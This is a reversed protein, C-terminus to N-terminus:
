PTQRIGAAARPAGDRWWPAPLPRTEPAVQDLTEGEYLRGSKMVYRIAKSNRIEELPNRDLVVLDALKGPEISGLDDSLGIAEAGLITAARLADHRSMGGSQISWLEWHFALGQLQGHSGVGIRGGAEVVRRAFEAHRPFIHEEPLVWGAVGPNGGRRRARGDLEADPLFRRLKPDNAVPETAYYFNEAWPGGYAVLLTATNTTGSNVFLEVVDEYIPAVPLSHEVGSYGDLAHTVELAFDIGGETTPMLGLEKAAMIIWQRQQRNGSMYMKLTKTDYYQRYRKLVDRAHDLSKLQEAAFVGPGTSYVRPGLMEGTAVLDAYTLVDTTATQPDRATTVGYALNALYAWLQGFHIGPSHRFHAHTDVFGPVITKGTVDIVRAGQPPSGGAGVPAVSTIRDNTIVIEANEIIERGKMTIVRAGRLVLTSQPVDRRATIRIRHEEPRYRAQAKAASDPTATRVSDEFAKARDLDYVLHANGISWHVRRGGAAWAPFEGGIDTLKRVPVAATALDAVSVTPTPGGVYPVPLVYLDMGLQALAQDGSPAMLILNANPPNTAGPLTAGTVKLHGKLDTGDWRMSVLGDAGGYSYIRAPDAGFHPVGRGGTPAIVSTAGGTAPVWVFEAGLGSGFRELTEQMERAAARVAVIRQGDPSWALQAYRAAATTLRQPAAGQTGAAVRYLHGGERDSWTAFAIAAGDPSWVPYHEHQEFSSLRRPTGAPYEMVWVKGLASFALRRGDPSPVADRIQRVQVAGTDVRSAFRVEPGVAIEEDVEFPIKTAAGGGLPVRWIEGGYSIVVARSDPTFAYGPLVDLSSSGEQDDRQVPYALWREAGTALDRLRIGSETQYRTGYALWKGDPSLAPRFASGQRATMVTQVGADRDYVALQYTPFRVNYEFGTDRFAYWLYRPDLGFAAGLAFRQQPERILQLGNGGEVHYLWLKSAGPGPVGRTVVIGKGDPTWEPSSVGQLNGKTVQVTDRRDLAMTWVQDSGSRDSVFAVRKGDPSVRPQADFALGSTLRTARGGGIPLTYLDGLLDFVITAGDPTLDLSIWTGRTTQLHFTRPVLPLSLESKAKVTDQIASASAGTLITLLAAIM